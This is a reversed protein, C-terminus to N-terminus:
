TLASANSDQVFVVPRVQSNYARRLIEAMKKFTSDWSMDSLFLDVKILWTKQDLHLSKEACHVFEEANEAISVLREDAYPRIVDRIPTSVVPRGAALYEPTKSPSIFRTSENMAFPLLAVDWGALYQPLEQYDKKGLYHINPRKPLRDPNIKAVPGIMIIQWDPKLEAVKDVLDIDIREDILGFFGLRPHPIDKQDEPESLLAFDTSRAKRFHDADIGSPFPYINPHKKKKAEYLSQGDTFVVNAVKLLETELTLLEKPAGKFASLEDMCDFIIASPTLHRTFTLAMPTYYWSVHEEIGEDEILNDVLTALRKPVEDNRINKPLIPVIVKVGNQRREVKYSIYNQNTFHPEEFFYVRRDKAFRTMLQQPRQIVLDWRLHSFVIMDQEKTQTNERNLFRSYTVDSHKHLLDIKNVMNSQQM